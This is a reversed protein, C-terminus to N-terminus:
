VKKASCRSFFFASSPFFLQHRTRSQGPGGHRSARGGRTEHLSVRTKCSSMAAVSEEEATANGQSQEASSM